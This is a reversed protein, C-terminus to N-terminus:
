CTKMVVLEYDIMQPRKRFPVLCKLQPVDDSEIDVCQTSLQEVNYVSRAM